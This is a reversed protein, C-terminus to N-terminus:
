KQLAETSEKFSDGPWVAPLIENISVDKKKKKKKLIGNYSCLENLKM